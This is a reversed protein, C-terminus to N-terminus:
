IAAPSSTNAPIPPSKTDSTAPVRSGPRAPSIKARIAPIMAVGNKISPVRQTSPKM